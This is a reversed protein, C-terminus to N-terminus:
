YFNTLQAVMNSIFTEDRNIRCVYMDKLTYVVFDVITAATYLMQGQCQENGSQGVTELVIDTIEQKSIESVRSDKLIKETTDQSNCCSHDHILGFTSAPM